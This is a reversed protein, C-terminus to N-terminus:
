LINTKYGSEGEKRAIVYVHGKFEACFHMNTSLEFTMHVNNRALLSLGPVLSSVQPEENCTTCLRDDGM